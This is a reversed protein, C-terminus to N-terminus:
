TPREPLKKLPIKIQFHSMGMTNNMAPIYKNKLAIYRNSEDNSNLCKETHLTKAM